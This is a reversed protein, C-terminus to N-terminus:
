RILNEMEVEEEQQQIQRIGLNRLIQQTQRIGLNRLIQQTQGMKLAMTEEQNLRTQETKLVTQEMLVIPAMQQLSDRVEVEVQQIQPTLQTLLNLPIQQIIQPILLIQPTPLSQPIQQTTPIQLTQLIVVM